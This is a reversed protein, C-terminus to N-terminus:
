FSVRTICAGVFCTPMGDMKKGTLDPLTRFTNASSLTPLGQEAVRASVRYSYDSCCALTTLDLSEMNSFLTREEAAAASVSTLIITYGIIAVYSPFIPYQYRM